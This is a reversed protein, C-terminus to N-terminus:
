LLKGILRIEKKLRNRMLNAVQGWKDGNNSYSKKNISIIILIYM